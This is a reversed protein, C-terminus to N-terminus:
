DDNLGLHAPIHPLVGDVTFGHHAMVEDGPASTGFSDLGIAVDVLGTWAM